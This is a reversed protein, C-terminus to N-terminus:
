LENSGHCVLRFSLNMRQSISMQMRVVTKTKFKGRAPISGLSMRFVPGCTLESLRVTRANFSKSDGSVKEQLAAAKGEGVAEEFDKTAEIKDKALAYILHGDATM